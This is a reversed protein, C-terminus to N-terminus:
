ASGEVWGQEALRARLPGPHNTFVGAVGMVFQKSAIAADDVTYVLVPMGARSSEEVFERTVTEHDVHVSVARLQKAAILVAPSPEHSLPAIAVDPLRQRVVRLLNWEFASLLLQQRGVIAREIADVYRGHDAYRCKLELNLPYDPPLADLIEEITPAIAARELYRGVNLAQIEAASANEGIVDDGSTRLLDWDHLAILRGDRTLQLDLEIMVAGQGIALLFSEITNEPAEGCAGRHGIIWPPAGLDLRPICPISDTM